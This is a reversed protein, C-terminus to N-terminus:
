LHGSLKKCALMTAKLVEHTAKKRKAHTVLKGQETQLFQAPLDFTAADRDEPASTVHAHKTIAKIAPKPSFAANKGRDM